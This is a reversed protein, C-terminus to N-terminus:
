RFARADIGFRKLWRQVQTRAKGLERAAECVNGKSRTLAWVLRRRIRAVSEDSRPPVPPEAPSHVVSAPLHIPDIPADGALTAAVDLVRHLERANLPWRYRLLARGAAPTFRVARDSAFAEIMLGIDER